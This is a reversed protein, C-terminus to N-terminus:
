PRHNQHNGNDIEAEQAEGLISANLGGMREHPRFIDAVKWFANGVIDPRMREPPPSPYLTLDSRM